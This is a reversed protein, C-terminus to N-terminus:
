AKEIPFTLGAGYWGIVTVLPFLLLVMLLYVYGAGSLGTLVTSDVVRWVFAIAAVLLMASALHKKITVARLPVALYNLWWAYLGTMIAVTNFCVGAGLCHFATTEFAGIGTMLYLLNFVTTSFMFVIPFHVTMPHPHRRLMPFRALLRALAPPMRIDASKEKILVGVQPYRALVEPGHPAAQIDATLDTGSLHRKMHRGTRWLRSGGVDYVRGQHAICVPRNERGDCRKLAELTFEKM